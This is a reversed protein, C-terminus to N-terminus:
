LNAKCLLLRKQMLLIYIEQLVIPCVIQILHAMDMVVVPVVQHLQEQQKVEEVVEVLLLYQQCHQIEVRFVEAAVAVLVLVVQVLLLQTLDLDWHFLELLIDVLVVAVVLLIEVVAAVLL